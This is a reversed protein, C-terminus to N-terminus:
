THYRNHRRCVPSLSPLPAPPSALWVRTQMHSAWRIILNILALMQCHWEHGAFFSPPLFFLSNLHQPRWPGWTLPQKEDRAAHTQSPFHFSPPPKNFFSLFFFCGAKILLHCFPAPNQHEFFPLLFIFVCWLLVSFFYLPPLPLSPSLYLRASMLLAEWAM